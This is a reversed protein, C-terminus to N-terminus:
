RYEPLMDLIEIPEVGRPRSGARDIDLEVVTGPEVDRVMARVEDISRKALTEGAIAVIEDGVEVDHAEAVGTSEYIGGVLFEGNCEGIEFGPGVFERRDIHDADEYRWLLLRQNPYDVVFLFERLWSGGLLGRITRGTENSLGILLDEDDLVLAPVSEVRGAGGDAAEIWRLRTLSTEVIGSASQVTVDGLSPRGDEGLEALFAPSVSVYSAGTDVLFNATTGEVEVPLVVRNPAIEIVTCGDGEGFCYSGGGLVAVDVAEGDMLPAESPVDGDLGGDSGGVSGDFLWLKGALYDGAFQFENLLDGGILGGPRLGSCLEIDGFLEIPVFPRGYFRLGFAAIDGSVVTELDYVDADLYTLPAGTDVLFDRPETTGITAEVFPTWGEDVIADTARGAEGGWDLGPREGAGDCAALLTVQALGLVYLRVFRM